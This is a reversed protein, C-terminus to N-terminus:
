STKESLKGRLCSLYVYDKSSFSSLREIIECILAEILKFFLGWVMWNSISDCFALLALYIM